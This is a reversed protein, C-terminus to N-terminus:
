RVARLAVAVRYRARAWETWLRFGGRERKKLTSGGLGSSVDLVGSPWVSRIEVGTEWVAQLVVDVPRDFRETVELLRAAADRGVLTAQMGLAVMRPRILRAGQAEAIVKGPRERDKWPFRTVHAADCHKAVLAWASDFAPGLEVDDEVVLGADLGREVIRTWARRHSLSVAIETPNLGFPWRPRFLPGPVARSMGPPRERADVAPVVEVPGPLRGTLYDVQPARDTARGLHIIFSATGAM